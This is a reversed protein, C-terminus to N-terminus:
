QIQQEALQLLAILRLEKPSTNSRSEDTNNVVSVAQNVKLSQLSETAQHHLGVTVQLGAEFLRSRSSHSNFRQRNLSIQNLAQGFDGTFYYYLAKRYLKDEIHAPAAVTEALTPMVITLSIMGSLLTAKVIQTFNLSPNLDLNPDLHLRM